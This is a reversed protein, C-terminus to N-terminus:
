ARPRRDKRIVFRTGYEETSITASKNDVLDTTLGAAQMQEWTFHIGRAGAFRVKPIVAWLAGDPQLCGQLSAFLEPLGDLSRPWFLILDYRVGPQLEEDLQIRAPMAEKLLTTSPVPAELLCIRQDMRFGLKKALENEPM